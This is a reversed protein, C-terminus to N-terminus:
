KFNDPLIVCQTEEEFFVVSFVGIDYQSKLYNYFGLTVSINKGENNIITKM